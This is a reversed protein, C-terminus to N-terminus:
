SLYPFSRCLPLYTHLLLLTREPTRFICINMTCLLLFPYIFSAFMSTWVSFSSLFSLIICTWLITALLTKTTFTVTVNMFICQMDPFTLEILLWSWRCDKSSFSHVDSLLWCSPCPHLYCSCSPSFVRWPLILFSWCTPPLFLGSSHSSRWGFTLGPSLFPQLCSCSSWVHQCAISPLARFSSTVKVGHFAAVGWSLSYCSVIIGAMRPPSPWGLFLLYLCSDGKRPRPDVM